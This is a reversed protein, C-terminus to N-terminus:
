VHLVVIESEPWGQKRFRLHTKVLVFLGGGRVLAGWAVCLCVGGGGRCRSVM